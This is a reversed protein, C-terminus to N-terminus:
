LFLLGMVTMVLAVASGAKFGSGDVPGLEESPPAGTPAVFKPPTAAVDPATNIKLLTNFLELANMQLHVNRPEVKGATWYNSNCNFNDDCLPLLTKATNQMLSKLQAKLTVNKSFMYLDGLGRIYTGKPLVQNTQCTQTKECADYVTNNLTYTALSAAAINEGLQIYEDKGTAKYLWGLSGALMGANYSHLDIVLACSDVSFARVNDFVTFNKAIVGGKLWKVMKEAHEIYTKNSNIISLRAGMMIQQAHTITSKIYKREADNRDKSWYLGGPNGKCTVDEWDGWVDDYTNQALQFYTVGKPMVTNVPYIEAGYLGGLAWWLIDDNWKGQISIQSARNKGLFSGVPGYSALTLGNTVTTKYQDDGTLKQYEMVAGWMIGGEFWQFGEPGNKASPLISGGGSTKPTYYSMLQAAVKKTASMLQEPKNIDVTAALAVTNLILQLKVM